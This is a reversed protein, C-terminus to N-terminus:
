QLYVEGLEYVPRVEDGRGVLMPLVRPPVGAGAQCADASRSGYWNTAGPCDTNGQGSVAQM